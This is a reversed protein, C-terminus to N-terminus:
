FVEMWLSWMASCCFCRSCFDHDRFVRFTDLRNSPRRDMCWRPFMRSGRLCAKRRGWAWCSRWSPERNSCSLRRTASSSARTTSSDCWAACRWLRCNPLRKPTTRPLFGPRCRFDQCSRWSCSNPRRVPSGRCINGTWLCRRNSAAAQQRETRM